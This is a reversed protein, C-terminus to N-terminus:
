SLMKTVEKTSFGLMKTSFISVNLHLMKTPIYFCLTCFDVSSEIIQISKLLERLRAESTKISWAFM